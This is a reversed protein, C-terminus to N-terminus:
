RWLTFGGDQHTNARTDREVRQYLKKKRGKGKHDEPEPSNRPKLPISEAAGPKIRPTSKKWLRRNFAQKLEEPDPTAHLTLPDSQHRTKKFTTRSPTFFEPDPTPSPPQREPAVYASSAPVDVRVRDSEEDKRSSKAIFQYLAKNLEEAKINPNSFPKQVITSITKDFEPADETKLFEREPVLVYTEM